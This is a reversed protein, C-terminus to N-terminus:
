AFMIRPRGHARRLMRWPMGVCIAHCAMRCATAYAMDHWIAHWPMHWPMGRRVCQCGPCATHCSIAHYPM